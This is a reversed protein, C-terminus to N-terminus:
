RREAEVVQAITRLAHEVTQAHRTDLPRDGFRVRYFAGVIEELADDVAPNAGEGDRLRSAAVRAFERQTQGASRTLGRRALLNELRRYFEVRGRNALRSVVTPARAHYLKRAVRFGLWGLLTLAACITGAVLAGRWSFWQRISEGRLRLATTLHQFLAKWMQPDTLTEYTERIARVIPEYVARRQRSGDMEVVYSSWVTDLWSVARHWASFHTAVPAIEDTAPATADLRLWGGAAWDWHDEGRILEPPLDRPRLYVEVWTHAHLQRVQFFRGMQNWEDTKYGIIMRAPIGQSRLMLALATAFYECHGVPNNAIFDEVPDVEPNREPPDLSYRFQGSHAMQREFHRALAIRQNPRLGSDAAWRDALAVLEPLASAGDITPMHLLFRPAIAREAPALVPQTGNRLATTGLSFSFRSRALYTPRLLRQRDQDFILQENAELPVFPWVCFVEERDLPEMTIKQDVLLDPKEGASPRVIQMGRSGRGGRVLWQGGSYHTMATGHLYIEGSVPYPQGSQPDEFHIRLVEDPDEVIQGLEGLTVRGSYGILRKPAPAVGRWNSRGPRPVVFFMVATFVLTTAGIWALRAFLDRGVATAATGTGGSGTLSAIATTLPWRQSASPSRRRPEHPPRLHRLSERHLFLLGLASLATFLYVVLMFGFWAGQSFPAAVVVQLFSLMALQWYTRADKRQFLLIVQLYILLNAMALIQLAGEYTLLNRASVLTAILAALGAVTRNLQFWGTVDTLWVSGVAAILMLVPLAPERQGLGLMLTGLAALAAMNIQLLRELYMSTNRPRDNQRRRRGAALAAPPTDNM